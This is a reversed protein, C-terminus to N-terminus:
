ARPRKAFHFFFLVFVFLIILSIIVPQMFYQAFDYEIKLYEPMIRYGLLLCCFGVIMAYWHSMSVRLTKLFGALAAAIMWIVAQGFLFPQSSFFSLLDAIDTPAGSFKVGSALEARASISWTYDIQGIVEALALILAGAGALFAALMPGFVVGVALPFVFPINLWALAPVLFPLLAIHFYNRGLMLWYVALVGGVVGGLPPSIQWAGASIIAFVIALGAPPLLLSVFFVFVPLFAFLTTDSLPLHSGSWAAVIATSTAFGTVILTEQHQKLRFALRARLSQPWSQETDVLPEKLEGMLEAVTDMPQENTQLFRELKSKLDASSAFRDEPNKAIAQSIVQNLATPIDDVLENAPTPEDNLIKYITGAPTDAEFPLRGVVMEYFLVGLSFIDSREDAMEGSAQEPSMYAFTGVVDGESTLGSTKAASRLRAIGFDMVKVRGDELIRLNGPKIDRHIVDNKHAFSLADCVQIAIGLALDIPLRVFRDLISALDHGEVFEMILHYSDEQQEFEYLTVIGPHNLLAVTKAERLARIARQRGAPITKIAVVREIKNDFAKVM